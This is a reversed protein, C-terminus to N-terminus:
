NCSSCGDKDHLCGTSCEMHDAQGGRDNLCGYCNPGPEIDSIIYESLFCHMSVLQNRLEDFNSAYKKYTAPLFIRIADINDMNGSYNEFLKQLSKERKETLEKDIIDHYVVSIESNRIVKKAQTKTSKKTILYYFNTMQAM